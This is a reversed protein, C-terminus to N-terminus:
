TGRGSRSPNRSGLESDESCGPGWCRGPCYHNKMCLVTNALVHGKVVAMTGKHNLQSWMLQAGHRRHARHQCQTMAEDQDLRRQSWPRKSQCCRTTELIGNVQKSQSPKNIVLRGPFFVYEPIVQIANNCWSITNRLACDTVLDGFWSESELRARVFALWVNKHQQSQARLRRHASSLTDPVYRAGYRRWCSLLLLSSVNERKKYFSIGLPGKRYKSQVSLIM